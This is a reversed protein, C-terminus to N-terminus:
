LGSTLPEFGSGAVMFGQFRLPKLTKRQGTTIQLQKSQLTQRGRVRPIM